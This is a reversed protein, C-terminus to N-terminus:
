NFSRIDQDYDRFKCNNLHTLEENYSEEFQLREQEQRKLMENYKIVKNDTLEKIKKNLEQEAKPIEEEEAIFLDGDENKPLRFVTNIQEYIQKENLCIQFFGTPGGMSVWFLIEGKICKENREIKKGTKFGIKGQEQLKILKKINESSNDFPCIWNYNKDKNKLWKCGLKKVLDKNCFEVSIEM